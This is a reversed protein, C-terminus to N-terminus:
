QIEKEATTMDQGLRLWEATCEMQTHEMEKSSNKVDKHIQILLNTLQTDEIHTTTLNQNANRLEAEASAFTINKDEKQIFM